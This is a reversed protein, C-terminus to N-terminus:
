GTFASGHAGSPCIRLRRGTSVKRGKGDQVTASVTYSHGASLTSAKLFFTVAKHQPQHTSYRYTKFTRGQVKVTITKIGAVATASVHVAVTAHQSHCSAGLSGVAVKPPPVPNVRIRVVATNNDPTPDYGQYTTTGSLTVTGKSLATLVIKITAKGEAAIAGLQCTVKTKTHTCTGQSATVSDIQYRGGPDAFTAKLAKQAGSNAVVDTVTDHQGVYITPESASGSLGINATAEFAGIDCVGRPPQPRPVGREDTAPCTANNGADVGPRHDLLAMTLLSGGNNQLPGLLPDTNAKDGAADFNCTDANELNNGGSSFTGTTSNYTLSACNSDTPAQNDAIITNTPHVEGAINLIGGGSGQQASNGALTVNTLNDVEGTTNYVYM